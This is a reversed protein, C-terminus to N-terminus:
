AVELYAGTRLSDLPDRPPVHERALRAQTHIARHPINANQYCSAARWTDNAKFLYVVEYDHDEPDQNASYLGMLIDEGNVDLTNHSHLSLRVPPLDAPLKYGFDTEFLMWSDSNPKARLKPAYFKKRYLFGKMVVRAGGAEGFPAELLLAGDADRFNAPGSAGKKVGDRVTGRRAYYKYAPPPEEGAGIAADDEGPADDVDVDMSRADAFATPEALGLAEAKRRRFTHDDVVGADHLRKLKRLADEDIPYPGVLAAAATALATAGRPREADDAQM